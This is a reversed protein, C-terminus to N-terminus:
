NTKFKLLDYAYKCNLISLITTAGTFHPNLPWKVAYWGEGDPIDAEMEGYENPMIVETFKGGNAKLYLNFEQKLLEKNKEM